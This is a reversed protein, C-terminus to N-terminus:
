IWKLGKSTARFQFLHMQDSDYFRTGTDNDDDYVEVFGQNILSILEDRLTGADVSTENLLRNYPEPYLLNRLIAQQTSTVKHM